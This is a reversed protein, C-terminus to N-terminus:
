AVSEFNHSNHHSRAAQKSVVTVIYTNFIVAVKTNTLVSMWKHVLYHRTTFTSQFSLQHNYHHIRGCVPSISIIICCGDDSDLCRYRQHYQDEENEGFFYLLRKKHLRQKINEHYAKRQLSLFVGYQLSLDFTATTTTPVERDLDKTKIRPRRNSLRGHPGGLIPTTPDGDVKSEEKSEEIGVPHRRKDKATRRGSGAGVMREQSCEVDGQHLHNILKDISM